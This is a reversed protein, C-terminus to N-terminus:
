IIHFWRKGLMIGSIISHHTKFMKAVSRQSIGNNCLKRIERVDDDNLKAKGNKTGRAPERGLSSYAHKINASRNVWELNEIRNDNRIGNKHNVETTHNPKDLFALAVVKHCLIYKKQKGNFCAFQYYGKTDIRDKLKRWHDKFMLKSMNTNKCTYFHGERCVAYGECFEFGPMDSILKAGEPLEPLSNKIREM